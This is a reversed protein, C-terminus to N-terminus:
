PFKNYYPELYTGMMMDTKQLIKAPQDSYQKRASSNEAILEGVM